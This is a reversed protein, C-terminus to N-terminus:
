INQIHFNSAFTDTRFALAVFYIEYSCPDLFAKKGDIFKGFKLPTCLFFGPSTPPDQLLAKHERIASPVDRLCINKELFINVKTVFRSPKVCNRWCTM